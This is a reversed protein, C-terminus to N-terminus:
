AMVPRNGGISAMNRVQASASLLLAQSIAPFNEMIHPHDAVEAMRALAGIRVAAPGLEIAAFPLGNIDLLRSPARVGDKLLQMMDTGGAIFEAGPGQAAAAVAAQLENTRAYSFPHM